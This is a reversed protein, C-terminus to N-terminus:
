SARGLAIEPALIENSYIMVESGVAKTQATYQLSYITQPYGTYIDRIEEANDYSVMWHEFGSEILADRITIHDDHTYFNRYLGQGKVYYPPDLYLMSQQPIEGDLDNILHIADLNYLSIRDSFLSIRRIRTILNAKNFRVDLKWTGSQAKGGIVGAKLIGSRNTRNLFFTAFGLELSAEGQAVVTTNLIEKQRHWEEITVETTEIKEILEDTQYLVAFWFSFVAPDIDNLHIHETTGSILMDLAVAGGGTYPEVYHGGVINNARYTEKVYDALKGKGGPYRLPTLFRM